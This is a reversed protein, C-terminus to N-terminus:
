CLSLEWRVMNIAPVVAPDDPDFGEARVAERQEDDMGSEVGRWGDRSGPLGSAHVLDALQHETGIAPPHNPWRLPAGVTMNSAPWQMTVVCGHRHWLAIGCASVAALVWPVYRTTAAGGGTVARSSAGFSMSPKRVNDSM